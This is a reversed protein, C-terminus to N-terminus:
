TTDYEFRSGTHCSLCRNPFAQWLAATAAMGTCHAPALQQIGFQGLEDLTRRLRESSANGLHMGGLVAHIPRHGNLTRIHRLTNVVGSHACGLLVVTGRNAEFFVAQDDVLLDPTHCTRDLFFSGGTDEYDTQRPIEGTATLGEVVACPKNTIHWRASHQRLADRSAQPIGVESVSANKAQSFKENLADSHAYIKCRSNSRLVAAIGGTHDYHGHSLM